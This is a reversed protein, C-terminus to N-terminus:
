ASQFAPPIMSGSSVSNIWGTRMRKKTGVRCDGTGFDLEAVGLRLIDSKVLSVFKERPTM